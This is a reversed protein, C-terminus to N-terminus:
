VLDGGLEIIYMKICLYELNNTFIENERYYM